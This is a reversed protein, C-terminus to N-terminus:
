SNTTPSADFPNGDDEDYLYQYVFTCDFDVVNANNEYQMGLDPIKSPFVGELTFKHIVNQLSADLLGVHAQVNPIIKVGGGSLQLRAFSNQWNYLTQYHYMDQDLMVKCNWTGDYSVQKPIVFDQSLFAVTSEQIQVQPISSSKIYYTISTNSNPDTKLPGPLDSGSFMVIFQHGYLLPTKQMINRYFKRLDVPNKRPTPDAM